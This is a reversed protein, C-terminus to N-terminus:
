MLRDSNFYHILKFFLSQNCDSICLHMSTFTIILLASLRLVEGLTVHDCVYPEVGDEAKCVM